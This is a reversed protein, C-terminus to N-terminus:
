QASYPVSEPIKYTTPIKDRTLRRVLWALAVLISIIGVVLTALSVLAPLTAVPGGFIDAGVSFTEFYFDFFWHLLVAAYAGYGLYVFGLAFGSIAATFAKGVGWDTGGSIVHAIGFLSSTLFLLIWESWHIGRWGRQTITPLGVKAKASEPSLISLSVLPIAKRVRVGTEILHTRWNRLWELTRRFRSSSARTPKSPIAEVSHRKWLTMVAVLVGLTTIRFAIEESIPSYTLAAYLEAQPPCPNCLTGSPLGSQNLVITAVLVILLLGCSVLPMSVLWASEWNIRGMQRLRQLGSLFGERSRFAAIFCAVYIVICTDTLLLLDVPIPTIIPYIFFAGTFFHVRIAVLQRALQGFTVLGLAMGIALAYTLVTFSVAGAAIRGLLGRPPQSM